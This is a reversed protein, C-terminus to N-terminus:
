VLGYLLKVYYKVVKWEIALCTIVNLVICIVNLVICIVNLVKLVCNISHLCKKSIQASVWASYAVMYFNSMMNTLKEIVICVCFMQRDKMWYKLYVHDCLFDIGCEDAGHVAREFWILCM